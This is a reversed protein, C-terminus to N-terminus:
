HGMVKYPKLEKKKKKTYKSTSKSPLETNNGTKQPAWLSMMGDEGGVLLENTKMTFLVCRVTASHCANLNQFHEVGDLKVHLLKLQGRFTGVVFFLRQSPEHYFGDVIYDLECPCEKEHRLEKLVGLQDGSCCAWFHVTEIHTTAFMYEYAPGFFGVKNVSSETNFVRLLMDNESECGVDLLCVLGDTSGTAMLSTNQPHFLVQTIDDSHLDDYKGHQKVTPFEQTNWAYLSVDEEDEEGMKETGACLFKGDCSIALASFPEHKDGTSSMSFAVNQDLIKSLM